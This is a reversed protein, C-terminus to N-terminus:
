SHTVAKKTGLRKIWELWLWGVASGIVYYPFDTWTFSTGILARGIFFRRIFELFPPHWLQMFELICTVIFVTFAIIAPKAKYFIFFFFLCWFIEYFAGGLSNNVWYYAPGKYFKSYFGIPTLIFLSILTYVRFSDLKFSFNV